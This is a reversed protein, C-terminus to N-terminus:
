GKSNIRNTVLARKETCQDDNSTALCRGQALLAKGISGLGYQSADLNVSRSMSYLM